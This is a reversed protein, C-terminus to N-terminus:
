RSFEIYYQHPLFDKDQILRYGAKQMEDIVIDKALKHEVPPGVPLLKKFYDVIVVRGDIKLSDKVGRFYKVRDDIHHYTNCLFVVDVSNTGLEPDDTRVIRAIYNKLNLKSADEKMYEVMSNEIDLSRFLM